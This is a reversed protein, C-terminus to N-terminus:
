IQGLFSLYFNLMCPAYFIVLAHKKKKLVPKYNEETLHLVQSEEESWSKEPLAPPPPEKPDRMFQVIKSAERFNVDFKHEGYSFYKLTPYGKVSFRDAIVSEKTADIAAMM